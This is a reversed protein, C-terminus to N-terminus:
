ETTQIPVTRQIYVSPDRKQRFLVHLLERSGEWLGRYPKPLQDKVREHLRPLAHFPVMPYLHHEIHSEMNMFLFSFFFNLELSRTNLRHDWVNEALGVHQLWIFDWQFFSGYFRPLGFFLVPLWSRTAVALGIVILHLLLAARAWWFMKGYEEEPVYPKVTKSPIGLSHLILNKVAVFGSRLYFFDLM